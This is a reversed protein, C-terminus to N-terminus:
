GSAINNVPSAVNKCRKNMPQFLNRTSVACVSRSLSFHRHAPWATDISGPRQDSDGLFPFIEFNGVSEM